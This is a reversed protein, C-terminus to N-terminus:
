PPSSLFRYMVYGMYGLAGLLGVVIVVLTVVLEKSPGGSENEYEWIERSSGRLQSPNPAQWHQVVLDSSEDASGGSGKGEGEAGEPREEPSRGPGADPPRRPGKGDSHTMQGTAEQTGRPGKVTWREPDAGTCRLEVAGDAKCLAIAKSAAGVEVRHRGYFAPVRCVGVGDATGEFRTWWKDFVLDRYAEVAPTPTWDKKWLAAKPRWHRGEWFGWMLIGTVAPHAFCTRYVDVLGRAKAEEDSTNIDLETVKIPLKFRALRDLVRKVHSPNVGRGFHGQVGIGGVPVDAKIFGEIQKEYAPASGGSIMGFDNVYLVADADAERCWEFMEVWIHDGLRKAYYRNHVMENNVDYEVVRGRYRRLLDHARERLKARLEEDDLDKLWKQVHKEAAWFVCHGRVRIGSRECWELMADCNGYTLNGKQRETSYWKMANEHVASNFNAKLIELYKKRDPSGPPMRFVGQAIATGFWFEHGLQTVTGKAGPRTRVVITGMRHRRIAPNVPVEKALTAGSARLERLLLNRDEGGVVADNLFEVLVCFDGGEVDVELSYDRHERSGATFRKSAIEEDLSSGVWLEVLPYTGKAPQGSAKVTITVKGPREAHFWDGARGNAWLNWGGDATAGGTSRIRARSMPLVAEGASARAVAPPLPCWLLMLAVHAPSRNGM